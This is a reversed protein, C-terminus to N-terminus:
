SVAGAEKVSLATPDDSSRDEQRGVRQRSGRDSNASPRDPRASWRITAAPRPPSSRPRAPSRGEAAAFRARLISLNVREDPAPATLDRELQQFEARAAAADGRDLLVGTLLMRARNVFRPAQKPEQITRNLWEVGESTRGLDVLVRAYNFMLYGPIPASSQLGRAIEFAEQYSRM